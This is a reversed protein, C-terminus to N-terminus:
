FSLVVPKNDIFGKNLFADGPLVLKFAANGM